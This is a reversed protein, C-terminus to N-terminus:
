REEDSGPEAHMPKSLEIRKVFEKEAIKPLSSRKSRGVVVKGRNVQLKCGAQELAEQQEETIHEDLRLMLDIEEPLEGMALQIQALADLKKTLKTM